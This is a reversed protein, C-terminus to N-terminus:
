DSLFMDERQPRCWRGTASVSRGTGKSSSFSFLPPCKTQEKGFGNAMNPSSSCGGWRWLARQVCIGPRNGTASSFRTVGAHAVCLGCLLERCLPPFMFAKLLFAAPSMYSPHPARTLTMTLACWMPEAVVAAITITITITCTFHSKKQTSAILHPHLWLPMTESLLATSACVWLSDCCDRSEMVGEAVDGCYWHVSCYSCPKEKWNQNSTKGNWKRARIRGRGKWTRWGFLKGERELLFSMFTLHTRHM